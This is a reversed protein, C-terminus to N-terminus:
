DTCMAQQPERIASIVAQRASNAGTDVCVTYGDELLKKATEKGVGSSAGTVLATKMSNEDEHCM